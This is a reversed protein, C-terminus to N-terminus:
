KDETSFFSFRLMILDNKNTKWRKTNLMKTPFLENMVDDDYSEGEVRKYRGFTTAQIAFGKIFTGEQARDEGLHYDFSRRGGLMVITEIREEFIFFIFSLRDDFIMTILIISRLNFSKERRQQQQENAQLNVCCNAAFLLHSGLLSPPSYCFILGSFLFLDCPIITPVSSLQPEFSCECAVSKIDISLFWSILKLKFILYSISSYWLYRKGGGGGDTERSLSVCLLLLSPSINSIFILKEPNNATPQPIQKQNLSWALTGDCTARRLCSLAHNFLRQYSFNM